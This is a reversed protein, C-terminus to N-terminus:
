CDVTKFHDDDITSYVHGESSLFELAQSIQEKRLAPLSQHIQNVHVGVDNAQNDMSKVLAAVQFM